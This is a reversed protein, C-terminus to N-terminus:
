VTNGGTNISQKQKWLSNESSIISEVNNVLVSFKNDKDYPFVNTLYLHKEQKLTESTTRYSIWNEHFKFLTLMSAFIVVAAAIVSTVWALNGSTCSVVTITAAFSIELARLGLFCKKYKSSKTAYWDIQDDVRDKMYEQEEMKM